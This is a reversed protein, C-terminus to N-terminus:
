VVNRAFIFNKITLSSDVLEAGNWVSEKIFSFGFSSIKEIFKKKSVQDRYEFEVILGKLRDDQLVRKAGELIKLEHGDVDIKIYTPFSIDNDFVLEDLTTCYLGQKFVSGSDNYKPVDDVQAAGAGSEMIAVLLTSFGSENTLGIQYPNANHMNNLTINRCLSSFNLAEPEFSYVRSNPYMSAVFLSYIGINAGIDYFTFTQSPANNRFSKLWEIMEPEKSNFTAARFIEHSSSINIKFDCNAKTKVKKTKVLCSLLSYCKWRIYSTLRKM